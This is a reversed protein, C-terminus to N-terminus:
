ETSANLNPLPRSSKEYTREPRNIVDDVELVKSGTDAHGLGVAVGKGGRNPDRTLCPVTGLPRVGVVVGSLQRLKAKTFRTPEAVRNTRNTRHKSAEPELPSIVMSVWGNLSQTYSHSPAAWGSPSPSMRETNARIVPQIIRRNLNALVFEVKDSGRQQHTHWRSAANMLCTLHQELTRSGVRVPPRGAAIHLLNPERDRPGVAKSLLEKELEM